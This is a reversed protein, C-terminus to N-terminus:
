RWRDEDGVYVVYQADTLDPDPHQDPRHDPRDRGLPDLHRRHRLHDRREVAHPAARRREDGDRLEVPDLRQALALLREDGGDRHEEADNDPRHAERPADDREGLELLQRKVPETVNGKCCTTFAAMKRPIKSREAFMRAPPSTSEGSTESYKIRPADSSSPTRNTMGMPPASMGM